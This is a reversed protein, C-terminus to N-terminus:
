LPDPQLVDVLYDFDANSLFGFFDATDCSTLLQAFQDYFEDISLDFSIGRLALHECHARYIALMRPTISSM